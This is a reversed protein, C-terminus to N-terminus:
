LLGKVYLLDASSRLLDVYVLDGPLLLHVPVSSFRAIERERWSIARKVRQDYDTSVATKPRTLVM